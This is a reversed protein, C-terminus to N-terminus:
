VQLASKRMPSDLKKKKKSSGVLRIKASTLRRAKRRERKSKRKKEHGQQSIKEYRLRADKKRDKESEKKGKMEKVREQWASNQMHSGLRKREKRIRTKIKERKNYNKM